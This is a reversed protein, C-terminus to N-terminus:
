KIEVKHISAIKGDGLDEWRFVRYTKDGTESKVIMGERSTKINERRNFCNESCFYTVEMYVIITGAKEGIAYYCDEETDIEQQCVYCDALTM